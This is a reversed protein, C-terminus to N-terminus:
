DWWFLEYCMGCLGHTTFPGMDIRVINIIAAKPIANDRIFDNLNDMSIFINEKIM